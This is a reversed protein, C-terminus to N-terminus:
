LIFNIIYIFYIFLLLLIFLIFNGGAGSIIFYYILDVKIELLCVSCFVNQTFNRKAAEPTPSGYRLTAANDRNPQWLARLILLKM